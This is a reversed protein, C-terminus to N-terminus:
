PGEPLIVFQHNIILPEPAAATAFLQRFISRNLQKMRCFVLVALLLQMRPQDVPSAANRYNRRAIM